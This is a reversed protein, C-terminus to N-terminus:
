LNNMEDENCIIKGKPTMKKNILHTALLSALELTGGLRIMGIIKNMDKKM